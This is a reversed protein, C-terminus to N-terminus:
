VMKSTANAATPPQISLGKMNRPKRPAPSTMPRELASAESISLLSVPNSPGSFSASHFNNLPILNLPSDPSSSPSPDSLPSSDTTSLTTTPSSDDSESTQTSTSDRHKHSQDPALCAQLSTQQTSTKHAVDLFKSGVVTFTEQDAMAEAELDFVSMFTPIQDEYVQRAAASPMIEFSTHQPNESGQSDRVCFM